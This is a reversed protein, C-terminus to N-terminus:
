RELEEKILRMTEQKVEARNFKKHRKEETELTNDYVPISITDSMDFKIALADAIDLGENGLELRALDISVKFEQLKNNIDAIVEPSQQHLWQHNYVALNAGNDISVEGGKSKEKIHHYSITRDLKKYGTIKRLKIEEEPTIERIGAREMFCGKGYRQELLKRGTSNKL